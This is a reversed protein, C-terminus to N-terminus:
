EASVSPVINVDSRVTVTEYPIGEPPPAGTIQWNGHSDRWKYAITETPLPSIPTNELLRNARERDFFWLYAAAGAILLLALLFVAARGGGRRQRRRAESPRAGFDFRGLNSDRQTM